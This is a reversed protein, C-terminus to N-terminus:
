GPLPKVDTILIDVHHDELPFPPAHDRDLWLSQAGALAPAFHLGVTLLLVASSSRNAFGMSSISRRERRPTWLWATDGLRRRPHEDRPMVGGNRKAMRSM